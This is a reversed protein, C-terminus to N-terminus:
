YELRDNNDGLERMIPNEWKQVNDLHNEGVDRTGMFHGIEHALIRTITFLTDGKLGKYTVNLDALDLYVNSVFPDYPSHTHSGGNFGTGIVIKVPPWWWARLQELTGLIAGGHATTWFIEKLAELVDRRDQGKGGVAIIPVTGIRARLTDNNSPSPFSSSFPGSCGGGLCASRSSDSSIRSSGTASRGNYNPATVDASAWQARIADPTATTSGGAQKRGEEDSPVHHWPELVITNGTGSPPTCLFASGCDPPPTYTSDSSDDAAAAQFGTPDVLSVPSNRVYAYRSLAQSGPQSLIPDASVFRMQTPDYVRGSFNILGLSAEDDHRQGTFGIDIRSVPQSAYVEPPAPQIRAGFPDYALQTAGSDDVILDTSGLHDSVMYHTSAVGASSSVVAIPGAPGVVSFFHTAVGAETQREYLDGFSITTDGNSRHKVVRNHLGDYSFQYVESNATITAPLDFENYSVTRGPAGTQRGNGDYSYSGLTSSVPQDPGYVSTNYNFTLNSGNGVLVTRSTMNGRIDNYAYQVKQVINAGQNWTWTQLRHLADYSFTEYLNNPNHNDTRSTIDRLGNVTYSVDRLTTGGSTVAIRGLTTPNTSSESRVSLMGNGFLDSTFVGSADADQWQWFPAGTQQNTISQLVGLGGSYNYQVTFAGQGVEAAAPYTVTALRGAPDYSKSITLPEGSITWQESTLNGQSDYGYDTAVGDPSSDVHALKGIGKGVGTDYYLTNIRSGTTEKWLRGVSDYLRTTTYEPTTETELDGFANMAYTRQGSNRALNPDQLSWIHGLRDSKRITPTDGASDTIKYLTNFPGYSYRTTIQHLLPARFYQEHYAVIRGMSDVTTTGMPPDTADYITTQLGNRGYSWVSGDPRNEQTVRDLSDYSRSLATGGALSFSPVYYASLRDDFDYSFSEYVAKGDPRAWTRQVTPKGTFNSEVVRVPGPNQHAVDDQSILVRVLTDSGVPPYLDGQGSVYSYSTEGGTPLQELMKRGLGDYQYISQLGNEDEDIAIIGFGPHYAIRKVHNLSDTFVSPFAHESSDYDITIQRTGTRPAVESYTVIHPLGEATPTYTVILPEEGRDLETMPDLIAANTLNWHSDFTLTSTRTLADSSTSSTEVVKDSQIRPWPPTYDYSPTHSVSDTGGDHTISSLTVTGYPDVTQSSANQYLTGADSESVTDTTASSYVFFSSSGSVPHVTTLTYNKTETRQVTGTQYADYSTTTVVQIPTGVFPYFSQTNEKEDLDYTTTTTIDKDVRKATITQFGLLGRGRLDRRASQYTYQTDNYGYQHTQDDSRSIESVVLLKGNVCVEPYDGCYNQVGESFVNRDSIPAYSISFRVGPINQGNRTVGTRDILALERNRRASPTRVFLHLEGVAGGNPYEVMAIDDLGDGNVDLIEFMEAENRNGAEVISHVASPLPTVNFTWGDFWVVLLSASPGGGTDAFMRLLIDQRGDNNFDIVRAAFGDGFALQPTPTYITSGPQPPWFGNGSNMWFYVSGDGPWAGLEIADTLGDGNIDAFVYPRGNADLTTPPSTGGVPTTGAHVATYRSPDNTLLATLIESSGDGDVDILRHDNPGYPLLAGNTLGGSGDNLQYGWGLNNSYQGNSILSSATEVLDPLGDGNLDAMEGAYVTGTVSLNTAPSYVNGNFSYFYANGDLSNNGGTTQFLFRPYGQGLFDVPFLRNDYIQSPGSSSTSSVAPSSVSGTSERIGYNSTGNQMYLLDDSGDDNLDVTYIRPPWKPLGVGNDSSQDVMRVDTILNNSADKTVETWEGDLPPDQKYNLHLGPRCTDDGDCELVDTLQPRVSYSPFASPQDYYFTYQRLTVTATADANPGTVRLGQIRPAPQLLIGGVYKQSVGSVEDGCGGDYVFSVTKTAPLSTATNKTYRISSPYAVAADGPMVYSGNICFTNFWSYDMENSNQDAVSVLLWGYRVATTTAGVTVHSYGTHQPDSSFSYQHVGLIGGVSQDATQGWTTIRGDRGYATIVTPGLVPDAQTIIFRRHDDHLLRFYANQQNIPTGPVDPVLPEGDLCLQDTNAFAVASPTGGPGADAASRPCRHIMPLGNMRWGFGVNAIMSAGARSNYDLSL